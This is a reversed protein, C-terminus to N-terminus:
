TQHEVVTHPMPDASFKPFQQIFQHDLLQTSLVAVLAMNERESALRGEQQRCKGVLRQVKAPNFYGARKLAEDSLMEPVYEPPEACM